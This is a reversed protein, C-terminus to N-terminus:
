PGPVYAPRHIKQKSHGLFEQVEVRAGLDAAIERTRDTSGSDLLIIEDCFSLSRLCREIRDEENLSIVCGSVPIM